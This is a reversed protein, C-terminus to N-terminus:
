VAMFGILADLVADPQETMLMHGGNLTVTQVAPLAQVLTQGARLPTMQDRTGSLVLVPCRLRAAQALGATYANCASLDTFLVGPAARELLRLAQGALWLGPVPQRGLLAAPSHGWLTIMDIAAHDDAKAAELLAKGVPMPAATGLLVLRSVRDPYRAACELAVLSGMSHGVLAAQELGAATILQATWDALDEISALAAGASRGHGPLDVALVNYGHHAFYRSQLLWVSHDMGAGHLFVVAPLAPNLTRAGTYIFTPYDNVILEM